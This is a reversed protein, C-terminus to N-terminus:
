HTCACLLFFFEHTCVAYQCRYNASAWFPKPTTTAKLCVCVYVCLEHTRFLSREVSRELADDDGQFSGYVCPCDMLLLTLLSRLCLWFLGVIRRRRPVLLLCVPLGNTLTLLSRLCLWFLGVILPMGQYSCSVRARSPLAIFDVHTLGTINSNTYRYILYM